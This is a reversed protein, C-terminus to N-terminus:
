ARKKSAVVAPAPLVGMDQLIAIANAKADPTVAQGSDKDGEIAQGDFRYKCVSFNAVEPLLRRITEIDQKALADLTGEDVTEYSEEEQRMVIDQGKLKPDTQILKALHALTAQDLNPNLVLRSEVFVRKGVPINLSRLEDAIEPTLRSSVAKKAIQCSAVARAGVGDFSDPKKGLAAAEQAFIEIVKEDVRERLAGKEGKLLKELVEFAALQDLDDGLEQSSREKARSKPKNTSGVSKASAFPDINAAPAAAAPKKPSAM